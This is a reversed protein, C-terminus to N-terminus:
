GGAVQRLDAVFTGQYGSVASKKEPLWTYDDMVVSYSVDGEQYVFVNQDNHLDILAQYEDQTDFPYDQGNV